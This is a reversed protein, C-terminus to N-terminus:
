WELKNSEARAHEAWDVRFITEAVFSDIALGESAVGKAVEKVFFRQYAVETSSGPTM